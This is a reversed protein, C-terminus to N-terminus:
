PLQGVLTLSAPERLGAGAADLSRQPPCGPPPTGKATWARDLRHRAPRLAALRQPEARGAPRRSGGLARSASARRRSFGGASGSFGGAASAPSQSARREASPRCGVARLAARVLSLAARPQGRAARSAVHRPDRHRSTAPAPARARARRRACPRAGQRAADDAETLCRRRSPPIRRSTPRCGSSCTRTSWRRWTTPSSRAAGQRVADIGKQIFDKKEPEKLRFDRFAKDWYYTAITYFAEPNNPEKAARQELAEITKEFEGQRNYYGALQMYVPPDNPQPTAAGQHADGRGGRLQGADEYIKALAFYNTPENPEMQIM